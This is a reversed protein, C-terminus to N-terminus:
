FRVEGCLSILWRGRETDVCSPEPHSMCHAKLPLVSIATRQPPSSGTDWLPIPLSASLRPVRPISLPCSCSHLVKYVQPDPKLVDISESRGRSTRYKPHLNASPTRFTAKLRRARRSLQPWTLLQQCPALLLCFTLSLPKFRTLYM